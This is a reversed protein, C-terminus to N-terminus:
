TGKDGQPEVIWVRQDWIGIFGASLLRERVRQWAKKFAEENDGEVLGGKQCYARWLSLPVVPRSTPFHIHDPPREGKNALANQLLRLAIGAQGGIPKRRKQTAAATAEIICSTIREDDEDTGVEIVTLRSATEEGEPGDKMYEVITTIGDEADRKVAIQADAAGTLSTHGRPRDGNIGCHHIVLVACGFAERLRDTARVYASMDEDKSESGALSRNLTDIVIVSCDEAGLEASIESILAEADAVLDLRTTVLFFPPDDEDVQKGKRFAVARAVLGREGECAVYVVTGQTVRRGRYTWGLAIHMVLDFTWFSKGCKPPGWIVVLGERPILGNVLYVATTGLEIDKFRVLNFRREGPAGGNTKANAQQRDVARDWIRSLERGASADGKERVWEATEPDVRLAAVMEEFTKGARRLSAGKRFAIASRSNDAGKKGTGEAGSRTPPILLALRELTERNLLALEVSATTWRRGTVAFYRHSFYVEVAPGHDRTDEGPVARRCGWQDVRVGISDLFPRVDESAAYFFLKIGSGSPSVEAYSQVIDLIQEAWTALTGDDRLCSDLDIGALHTDGGLDGLEIGVGGGQGNVIRAAMAEADARIGWTAPDDSKARNGSPGYPVKSPKGGRLENRWAVWRPENALADFPM